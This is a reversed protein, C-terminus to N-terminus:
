GAAFFIPPRHLAPGPLHGREIHYRILHQPLGTIEAVRSMTRPKRQQM